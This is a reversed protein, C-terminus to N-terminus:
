KRSVKQAKLANRYSKLSSIESCFFLSTQLFPRESKLGSPLYEMHIRKLHCRTGTQPGLSPACQECIGRALSHTGLLLPYRRYKELGNWAIMVGNDTCYKPPPFVVRVGTAAALKELSSRMMLNSAVGGSAVLTRQEAGASATAAATGWLGELEAYEIGRQVRMCIHRAVAYQFSLCHSTSWKYTRVSLKEETQTHLSVLSTGSM